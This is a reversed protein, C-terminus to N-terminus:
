FLNIMKSRIVDIFELDIQHGGEFEHIECDYNLAKSLKSYVELSSSIPVIEDNRGHSILTPNSTYPTWKPHAYGSCSIILGFNIQCAVNLTMAGGQSFGFLVSRTLPIKSNGFAKLTDVLKDVEQEAEHWNPPFLSYWQRGTSDSRKNPARIAVIEFEQPLDRLIEVGLPLLDDNDAGWGHLLFIRHTANQSGISVYEHHKLSKM